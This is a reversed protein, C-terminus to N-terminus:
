KYNFILQALIHSGNELADEDLIFQPSHLDYFEQNFGRVGLWAIASPAIRSYYAFDEGVMEADQLIIVKDDGLIQKAASVLKDSAGFDNYVADYAYQFEFRGQVRYKDLINKVISTMEKNLYDRTEKNFSRATGSFFARPAIINKATGCIAQTTTIVVNKDLMAKYLNNFEIIIESLPLIPNKGLSPTAAHCGIGEIEGEFLDPSAFAEGYKIGLTGSYLKNTVHFAFFNDVNQLLENDVLKIAGGPLPGEEAPQFIVIVNCKLKSINEAILKCAGVVMACHADHGCAHMYKNKSKYELSTQECMNLADIDARIGITKSYGLELKAILAAGDMADFVIFGLNSIIKKIYQQTNQTLYGIEPNEHLHRRVEVITEKLTM